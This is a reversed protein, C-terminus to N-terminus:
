PPFILDKVKSWDALLMRFMVNIPKAKDTDAVTAPLPSTDRNQHEQVTAALEGALDGLLNEQKKSMADSRELYDL